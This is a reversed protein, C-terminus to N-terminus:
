HLRRRGGRPRSRGRRSPPKHYSRWSEHIGAICTPNMDSAEALLENEDVASDSIEMDGNLLFLPAMFFAQLMVNLSRAGM